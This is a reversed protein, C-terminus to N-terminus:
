LVKEAVVEWEKLDKWTQVLVIRGGKWGGLEKEREEGVGVGVKEVERRVKELVEDRVKEEEMASYVLSVHPTFVKEAWLEAEGETTGEVFNRRCQKALAVLSATKETHLTLRTFFTDGVNLSSFKVDPLGDNPIDIQDLIEQQPNSFGEPLRSTLTLHPSFAPVREPLFYPPLSTSILSQLATELPSNAPPVLWLSSTGPM